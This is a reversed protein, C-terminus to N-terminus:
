ALEVCKQFIGLGLFYQCFPTTRLDIDTSYQDFPTTRVKAM